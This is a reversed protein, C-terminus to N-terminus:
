WSSALLGSVFQNNWIRSDGSIGRTTALATSTAPLFANTGQEVWKLFEQAASLSSCSSSYLRELDRVWGLSAAGLEAYGKPPLGLIALLKEETLGDALLRKEFHDDATFPKHAKWGAIATAARSTDTKQKLWSEGVQRSLAAREKL